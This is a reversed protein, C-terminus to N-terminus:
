LLRLLLLGAVTLTVVALNLVLFVVVMGILVSRYPSQGSLRDTVVLQSAGADPAALPRSCM